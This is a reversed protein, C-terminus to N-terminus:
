NKGPRSVTRLLSVVRRSLIGAVDSPDDDLEGPAAHRQFGVGGNIRVATPVPHALAALYELFM